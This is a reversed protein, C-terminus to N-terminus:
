DVLPTVVWWAVVTTVVPVNVSGHFLGFGVVAGVVAHSTALPLRLWNALGILAAAALAIVLAGSPHARLSDSGLLGHGITEMVRHGALVAGAVCFVAIIAVAQRRSRLGAGFAPGMEAASNNAGVNVALGVSVAGTVANLAM